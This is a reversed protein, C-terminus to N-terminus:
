AWSWETREADEIVVLHIHTLTTFTYYDYYRTLLKM